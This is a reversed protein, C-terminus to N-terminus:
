ARAKAVPKFEARTGFGAILPRGRKIADQVAPLNLSAAHAEQTEWIEVIWIADPNTSDEGILYGMNGPMSGTGESLIAILAARQGPQAMMQGILGYEPVVEEMQAELAKLQGAPLLMTAMAVLAAIHERRNM